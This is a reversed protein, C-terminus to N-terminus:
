FRYGIGVTLLYDFMWETKRKILRGDSTDNAVPVVFDTGANENQGIILGIGGGVRQILFLNKWIDVTLGIGLNQEVWHFPGWLMYTNYAVLPRTHAYRYQIDYFAFFDVHPLNKLFHIQYFGELGFFEIPKESFMRKRFLSTQDDNGHPKNINFSLGGGLEHRDHFQKSALVNISRGTNTSNFNVTVPVQSLVAGVSLVVFLLVLSIRKMNNSNFILVGFALIGRRILSYSHVM